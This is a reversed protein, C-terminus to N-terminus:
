GGHDRRRADVVTLLGKMACTPAVGDVKPEVIWDLHESAFASSARCNRQNAFLYTLSLMPVLHPV